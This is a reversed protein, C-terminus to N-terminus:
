FRSEYRECVDRVKISDTAVFVTEPPCAQICQRYTRVIMPVGCLDIVPKGPFRSSEYRAPVIVTYRMSM